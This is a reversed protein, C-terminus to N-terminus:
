KPPSFTAPPLNFLVLRHCLGFTPAVLSDPNVATGPPLTVISPVVIFMLLVPIKQLEVVASTPTGFEFASRRKKYKLLLTANFVVPKLPCPIDTRRRLFIGSGSVHLVM